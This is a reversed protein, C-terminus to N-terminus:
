NVAKTQRVSKIFVKRGYQWAQIVDGYLYAQGSGKASGVQESGPLFKPWRM